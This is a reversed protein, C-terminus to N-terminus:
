SGLILRLNIAAQTDRKRGPGGKGPVLAPKGGERYRKLWGCLSSTSIGFAEAIRRHSYGANLLLPTVECVLARREGIIQRWVEGVDLAPLKAGRPVFFGFHIRAAPGPKPQLPPPM